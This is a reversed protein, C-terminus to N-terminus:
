VQKLGPVLGKDLVTMQQLYRANFWLVLNAILLGIFAGGLIDALFHQVLYIRSFAVLIAAIACALELWKRKKNFLHLNLMHM